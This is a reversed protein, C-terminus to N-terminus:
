DNIGPSGGHEVDRSAGNSGSTLASRVVNGRSAAHKAPGRGSRAVATSRAALRPLRGSVARARPPPGVPRAGAELSRGSEDLKFFEVATQLQQAQKSLEGATAAMEEAAAANQQTVRDLDQLAKNSQEIGTSQERSAASVEQVLEATKAIDPVLRTLMAGAGEAISVGSKSLRSIEGAATASREALKRVESAVVAFGRGHEGARAAEVAANLALLDTNRAIEEIIGIKEAIDKMASVAETVAQGTSQADTSAKSALLDTQQANDANQQVSAGLQEMAATTQETAAGQQSAGQAVQGATTSMEGSGTAVQDAATSVETAVRRLNEVMDNLAGILTGVEDRNTIPATRTLDGQAVSSALETATRLARQLYRVVTIALWLGFVLAVVFAVVMLARSSADAADAAKQGAEVMTLESALIADAVAAAKNALAMGKTQALQAAEGDANERGLARGRAHVEEFGAYATRVAGLLRKEEASVTARNLVEFGKRIAAARTAIHHLEVEMAPVATAVILSKEDDSTAIIEYIAQWVTMRAPVTDPRKGLEADLVRLAKELEETRQEGPGESGLLEVAHENSAKQVLAVIQKHLEDVDHLATDLEDLKGVMAPNDLARLERRRADRDAQIKEYDQIGARRREDGDALILDREARTGRAVDGRVQGALRAGAAQVDVLLDSRQNSSSLEHIGLGAMFALAALLVGCVSIIKARISLNM